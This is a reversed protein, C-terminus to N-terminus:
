SHTRFLFDQDCGSNCQRSDQNILDDSSSFCFLFHTDPDGFFSVFRSLIDKKGSFFKETEPLDLSAKGAQRGEAMYIMSFYCRARKKGISQRYFSGSQRETSIEKNISKLIFPK